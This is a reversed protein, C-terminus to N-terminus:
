LHGKNQLVTPRAKRQRGSHDATGIERLRALFAVTQPSAALFETGAGTVSLMEDGTAMESEVVTEKATEIAIETTTKTAAVIGYTAPRPIGVPIMVMQTEGGYM